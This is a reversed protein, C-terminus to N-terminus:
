FHLSVNEWSTGKRFTHKFKRRQIITDCLVRAPQWLAGVFCGVGVCLAGQACHPDCLLLVVCACPGFFGFSGFFVLFFLTKSM